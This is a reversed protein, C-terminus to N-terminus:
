TESKRSVAKILAKMYGVTYARARYGGMPHKYPTHRLSEEPRWEMDGEIQPVHGPIMVGSFEAEKLACVLEYPDWDGTDIFEEQFSPVSGSVAQFHVYHIKGNEGFERIVEPMDEGMEEFNGFCFTAKHHESPYHDFAKRYAAASRFLHPVGGISEVPPDNPHISLTVGMEEAVPLVRDLFHFYYDWFEDEEYERDALLPGHRMKEHTYATGMSSGRIRGSYSTRKVGFPIWNYGFDHIGARAMNRISEQLNEIRRDREPRGFRIDDFFHSPLNEIAFVSLGADEIWSKLSLLEEFGIVGSPDDARRFTNGWVVLDTVGIQRIFRLREIEPRVFVGMGVRM